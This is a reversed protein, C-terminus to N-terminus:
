EYTRFLFHIFIRGSQRFARIFIYRPMHFHNNLRSSPLKEKHILQLKVLDCGTSLNIFGNQKKRFLGNYRDIMFLPSALNVLNIFLLTSITATHNERNRNEWQYHLNRLCPIYHIFRMSMPSPSLFICIQEVNLYHLLIEGVINIQLSYQIITHVWQLITKHM